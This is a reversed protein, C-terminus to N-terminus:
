NSNQANQLCEIQNIFFDIEYIPYDEYGSSWQIGIQDMELKALQKLHKKELTYGLPYIFGSKDSTPVGGSGAYCKLKIEKGDLLTIKLLNGVEVSGYFDKAIKSDIRINLHLAAENSVQVIQGGVHILNGDQLENKVETPTHQFIMARGIEIRHNKTELDIGNFVINCPSQNGIYDESSDSSVALSLISLLITFIM